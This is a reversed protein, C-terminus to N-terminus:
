LRGGAFRVLWFAQVKGPRLPLCLSFSSITQDCRAYGRDESESPEKTQTM